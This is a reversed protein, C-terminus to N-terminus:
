ESGDSEGMDVWQQYQPASIDIHTSLLDLVFSRELSESEDHFAQLVNLVRSHEKLIAPHELGNEEARLTLVGVSSNKGLLHPYDHVLLWGVACHQDESVGKYNCKGDTDVCRGGQEVIKTVAYDCAEQITATNIDFTM